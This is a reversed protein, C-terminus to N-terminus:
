DELRISREGFLLQLADLCNAVGEPERISASCGPHPSRTAGLNESNWAAQRRVPISARHTGRCLLDELVSKMQAFGFASRDGTREDFAEVSLALWPDFLGPFLDDLTAYALELGPSSLGDGPGFDPGPQETAELLGRQCTSARKSACAYRM